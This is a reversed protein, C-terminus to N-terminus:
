VSKHTQRYNRPTKGTWSKFARIFASPESFGVMIAIDEVKHEGDFLLKIAIDRRTQMKIEKFSLNEAMLRRHMVQQSLKFHESAERLTARYNGQKINRELWQRVQDSIVRYNKPQYLLSLNTGRLYEDLTEPTQTIATELHKARFQIGAKDQDFLIPAGYYLQVYENYISPKPHDLLVRELGLFQGGIWCHFRHISSLIASVLYHNLPEFTSKRTLTYECIEGTVVVSHHYSNNFLNWFNASRKLSRGITRAGISARTMMAFSGLAQPQEALGLYEDDLKMMSERAFAAFADLPVRSNQQKVSLGSIGQELLMATCDLGRTEAGELVMALWKIDISFDRMRCNFCM